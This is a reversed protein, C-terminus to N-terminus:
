MSGLEIKSMGFGAARHVERRRKRRLQTSDDLSELSYQYYKRLREPRLCTPPWNARLVSRARLAPMYPGPKGQGIPPAALLAGVM